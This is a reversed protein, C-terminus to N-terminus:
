EENNIVVTVCAPLLKVSAGTEDVWATERCADCSIEVADLVVRVAVSRGDRSRMAGDVQRVGVVEAM